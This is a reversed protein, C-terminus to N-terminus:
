PSGCPPPRTRRTSTPGARFAAAAEDWNGRKELAQGLDMQASADTPELRVAARFAAIAGELDGKEDLTYGRAQPPEYKDAEARWKRAEDAKGAADALAALTGAAQWLRYRVYSRWDDPYSAGVLAEFGQRTVAEAEAFRMRAALAEGLYTRTYATMWSGPALALRIALCDRLFPEAEAPRDNDVLGEGVRALANSLAITEKPQRKWVDTIRPAPRPGRRAERGGAPCRSRRVARGDCARGPANRGPPRGRRRRGRGGPRPAPEGTRHALRPGRPRAPGSRYAAIAGVLDGDTRFAGALDATVDRTLQVLPGHAPRHRLAAGAVAAADRLAAVGGPRDGARFLANALERRAAASKPALACIRRLVPTRDATSGLGDLARAYDLWAAAGTPRVAIAAMCYPLAEAYKGDGILFWALNHNIQFDGPHHPQARTLFRISAAHDPAGTLIYLYVPVLNVTQVPQRAPDIEDAIALLAAPDAATVADRIRNRVPDPDLARTVRFLHADRGPKADIAFRQVYAWDDLAAALEVTRNSGLSRLLDAGAEPSLAFLDTGYDRFAEEYRADAGDFDQNNNFALADGMGAQIELLTGSLRRNKEVQEIEVLLDRVRDQADVPAASREVLDRAQLAAARAEAWLALDCDAGRAQAYRAVAAGVADNVERESQERRGREHERARWAVAGGLVVLAAVTLGLAAQVKRRKRQEATRADAARLDGEVRVKDLEAQRARDDAAARLAAVARAVEGTDAPRDVAKPSLCRKCLAVLEPDAGCADMRAFCDAVDGTASKVRSTEASSAAFPPTGTLIVALIGGLGFVDSRADIKHVAGVAQEPPMFAPTGLVSGAQTLLDDVDRLSVVASAVSTAEPDAAGDGGTRLVKALGWDMVQVEGFAGVMVNAPKLDRHIVDHAHAYAVAQCVLEFAAVFRGRAAAPDPRAKLLADLTDGKVLKMAPFPRGDPLTGLDFVAPINPHQLQGTIRAEDAFRRATGSQPGYRDLLLKVAVERGFATDTARYVAGMGGHAIEDGLEYRGSPAAPPPVPAHTPLADVHTAAAPAGSPGSATAAPDAVSKTVTQEASEAQLTPDPM